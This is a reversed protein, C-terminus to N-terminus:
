SEQKFLETIRGLYYTPALSDLSVNGLRSKLNRYATTAGVFRETAKLQEEPDLQATRDPHTATAIARYARIVAAEDNTPAIGLTEFLESTDVLTSRFKALLSASAGFWDGINDMHLRQTFMLSMLSSMDVHYHEKIARLIGYDLDLVKRDVPKDSYTVLSTSSDEEPEESIRVTKRAEKALRKDEEVQDPTAEDHPTSTLANLFGMEVTFSTQGYQSQALELAQKNADLEDRLDRVLDFVAGRRFEDYYEGHPMKESLMDLVTQQRNRGYGEDDYSHVGMLTGDEKITVHLAEGRHPQDVKASYPYGGTLRKFARRVDDPTEGEAYPFVDLFKTGPEYDVPPQKEEEYDYREPVREHPPPPTEDRQKKFQKVTGELSKVKQYDRLCASAAVAQVDLDRIRDFGIRGSGSSGLMMLILSPDALYVAEKDIGTPFLLRAKAVAEAKRLNDLMPLVLDGKAETPLASYDITTLGVPAPLKHKEFVKQADRSGYFEVTGMRELHETIRTTFLALALSARFSIPVSRKSLDYVFEQEWNQAIWERVPQLPVHDVTTRGFRQSGIGSVADELALYKLVTLKERGSLDDSLFDVSTRPVEFRVLEGRPEEERKAPM